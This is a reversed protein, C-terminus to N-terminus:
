VLSLSPSHDLAPVEPAGKRSSRIAALVAPLPQAEERGRVPLASRASHPLSRAEAPSPGASAAGDGPPTGLRADATPGPARASPLGRADM